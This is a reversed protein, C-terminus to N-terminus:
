ISPALSVARGLATHTLHRVKVTRGWEGSAMYQGDPSIDVSMVKGNDGSLTKVLQWDDASWVKVLGDYGATAFYLGSRRVSAPADPAPDPADTAVDMDMADDELWWPAPERPREAAAAFFRVDAVSSRHAPITYVSRLARMDWVRVTDDGSASLLQYGNPAFAVGLIERAHGDLVMATRGTRVDWVRGM